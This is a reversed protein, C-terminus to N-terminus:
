PQERPRRPLQSEAVFQQGTPPALGMARALPAMREPRSLHAIDARAAAIDAEVRDLARDLAQARTELLRTEYSVGYLAAASGLALAVAGAPAWRRM